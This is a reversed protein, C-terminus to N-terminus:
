VLLQKSSDSDRRISKSNMPPIIGVAYARCLGAM